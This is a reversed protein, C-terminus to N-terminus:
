SNHNQFKTSSIQLLNEIEEIFLKCSQGPNETKMFHEGILFGQFGAQILRVVSKANSIGSESIKVFDNPIKDVLNLSTHIDVHFTELDRNNVGVIDIFENLKDLQKESHIEMLVELGLAKSKKALNLIEDNDLCEAILLIVDAGMAKSEYLQYEDIIFDKRLIPADIKQRAHVLDANSGGFFDEDTLVSCGAVGAEVYKSVIKEVDANQHIIGKSPSQKKFESIIGFTRNSINQKLSFCEKSMYISEQLAAIPLLKKRENVVKRTNNTIKELINM